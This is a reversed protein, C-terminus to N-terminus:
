LNIGIDDFHGYFYFLFLFSTIMNWKSNSVVSLLHINKCNLLENGLVFADEFDDM